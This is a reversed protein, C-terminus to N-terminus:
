LFFNVKSTTQKPIVSSLSYGGELISVVRLENKRESSSPRDGGAATILKETLWQFDDERLFHYMDDYHADFGASILLLDPQFAALRPLLAGHVKSRMEMSAQSCLENRQAATLKTRSKLDWPGPGIPTLGINVINLGSVDREDSDSGTPFSVILHLINLAHYGDRM